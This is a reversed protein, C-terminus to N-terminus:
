RLPDLPVRLPGDDTELLVDTSEIRRVVGDALKDEPRYANLTGTPAYAFATWDDDRAALGALEFESVALEQPKPALRRESPASAAVPVLAEESGPDRELLRRGEETREKLGATDLLAARLDLLPVDRAWISTRGLFGQPGLAALAADMDTMVALVDRLEARKLAFSVAPAGGGSSSAAPLVGRAQTVRRLPGPASIRLGLQKEILALIEDLTLRSLDLSVRGTLDGDVLFGQTTLRHLVQFVDSLDIDRLRLSYPGKGPTKTSPGRVVPGRGDDRDVRCPEADQVFPDETPLPLEAEVGAVPSQGRIEFRHCAGSRAVLFEAV